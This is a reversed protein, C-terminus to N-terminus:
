DQNKDGAALGIWQSRGPVHRVELRVRVFAGVHQGLAFRIRALEFFVGVADIGPLRLPVTIGGGM